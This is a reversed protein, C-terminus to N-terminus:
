IKLYTYPKPDERGGWEISHFAFSGYLNWNELHFRSLICDFRIHGKLSFKLKNVFGLCEYTMHTLGDELIKSLRYIM